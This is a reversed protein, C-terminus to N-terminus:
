GCKALTAAAASRRRMQVPLVMIIGVIAFAAGMGFTLLSSSTAPFIGSAVIILALGLIGIVLGAIPAPSNGNGTAQTSPRRLTAFFSSAREAAEGIAPFWIAAVALIATTVALSIVITLAELSMPNPPKVRWNYFLLGMGVILGGFFGALAGNASLRRSVLGALVPLVTPPVFLGFVVVMANFITWHFYTIGLALGLVVVAIIATLVRGVVLTERESAKPRIVRRYVDVTLVSAIVNYGSSLVSMTPAFLAAVILGMMGAPLLRVSLRAFVTQPDALDPGLFGRAFMGALIWLPPIVFYLFAAFWGVRRADRDNRASYFKQIMGWNGATSVCGMLGFAVVFMWNYPGNVPALISNPLNSAFHNWGGAARYCLPMLLVLAGTVLVFQVVVTVVVAWLGGLVAYFLITLGVVVMSVTPSVGWGGSVFVGIAVIKLAEDAVRLPIGSWVFVQNAALSFRNELFETPTIVGARRWRRAFVLTAFLTAPVSLWYLTLSVFGYQYGLGAYVVISLASVNSLFYSIGGLWWSVQRDGAFYSDCSKQRSYTIGIAVMTVFYTVLIFLDAPRM